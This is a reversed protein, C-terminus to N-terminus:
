MSPLDNTLIFKIVFEVKAVQHPCGKNEVDTFLPKPDIKMGENCWVGCAIKVSDKDCLAHALCYHQMGLRM